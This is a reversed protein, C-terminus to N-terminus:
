SLSIYLVIKNNMTPKGEFGVGIVWNSKPDWSIIESTLIEYKRENKIKKNTEM